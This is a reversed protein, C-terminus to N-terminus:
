QGLGLEACHFTGLERKLTVMHVAARMAKESVYREKRRAYELTTGPGVIAVAMPARYQLQLDLLKGTAQHAVVEGHKTRGREQVGFVIIGDPPRTELIEKVALPTELTGPVWTVERISADLEAELNRAYAIMRECIDRHIYGAVIHLLTNM